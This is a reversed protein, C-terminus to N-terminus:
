TTFPESDKIVPLEDARTAILCLLLGLIAFLPRMDSGFIAEFESRSSVHLFRKTRRPLMVRMKWRKWSRGYIIEEGPFKAAGYHRAKWSGVKKGSDLLPYVKEAGRGFIM